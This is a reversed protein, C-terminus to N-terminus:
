DFDTKRLSVKISKATEEDTPVGIFMGPVITMHISLGEVQLVTGIVKYKKKSYYGVEKRMPDEVTYVDGKLVMVEQVGEWRFSTIRGDELQVTMNMSYTQAKVSAACLVLAILTAIGIKIKKM